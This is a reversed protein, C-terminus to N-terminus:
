SSWRDTPSACLTSTFESHLRAGADAPPTKLDTTQDYAPYSASVRYQRAGVSASTVLRAM